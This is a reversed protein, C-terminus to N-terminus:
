KAKRAARPPKKGAQKEGPRARKPAPKRTPARRASWRSTASPAADIEIGFVDSVEGSKLVRTKRASGRTAPRRVAAEVMEAADVGRLTFLLEPQHDLRSGVGYLTAAVHKCMRAWDPCSCGVFIEHPAPLLGDKRHTVVEMVGDSLSGRLLEVLSGIRGACRRKLASWRRAPLRKIDIAVKYLRSGSVLSRVQGPAIQLDVVSGNRVYTRGRPLRNSYDSFSELHTCWSKGWFSTAIIRGSITVPAIARGKRRM